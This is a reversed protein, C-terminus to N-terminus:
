ELVRRNPNISWYIKLHCNIHTDHQNIICWIFGGNARGTEIELAQNGFLTRNHDCRHGLDASRSFFDFGFQLFEEQGKKRNQERSSLKQFSNSDCFRFNWTNVCLCLVKESWLSPRTDPHLISQRHLLNSATPFNERTLSQMVVNRVVLLWVKWSLLIPYIFLVIMSTTFGHKIILQLHSRLILRFLRWGDLM